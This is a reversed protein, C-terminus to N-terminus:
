LSSATLWGAAFMPGNTRARSSVLMLILLIIPIPSIAIAIAQPLSQGFATWTM